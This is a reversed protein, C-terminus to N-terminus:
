LGSICGLHRIAFSLEPYTKTILLYVKVGNGALVYSSGTCIGQVNEQIM